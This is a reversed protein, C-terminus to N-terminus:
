RHGSNDDGTDVERRDDGCVHRWGGGREKDHFWGKDPLSLIGAAIGRPHHIIGGIITLGRRRLGQVCVAGNRPPADMLRERGGGRTSEDIVGAGRAWRFRDRGEKGEGVEASRRRRRAAGASRQQRAGGDDGM